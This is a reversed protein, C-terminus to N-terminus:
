KFHELKHKIEKKLNVSEFIAIIKKVFKEYSNFMENKKKESYFKKNICTTMNSIESQLHSKTRM